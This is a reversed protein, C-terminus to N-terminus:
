NNRENIPEMYPQRNGYTSIHDYIMQHDDEDIYKYLDTLKPNGTHTYWSKTEPHWFAGHSKAIDKEVYPVNLWILKEGSPIYLYSPKESKVANKNFDDIFDCYLMSQYKMEIWYNYKDASAWNIPKQCTFCYTRAVHSIYKKGTPIISILHENHTNM